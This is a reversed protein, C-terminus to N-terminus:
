VLWVHYTVHTKHPSIHYTSLDFTLHWIHARVCTMQVHTRAWGKRVITGGRHRRMASWLARSTTGATASAFTSIPDGPEDKVKVESLDVKVALPDDTFRLSHDSAFVPYKTTLSIPLSMSVRSLKSVDQKVYSQVAQRSILNTKKRLLEQVVVCPSSFSSM